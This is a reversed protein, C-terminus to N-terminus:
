GYGGKSSSWGEKMPKPTYCVGDGKVMVRTDEEQKQRRDGQRKVERKTRAVGGAKVGQRKVKRKTRAVGGAKVGQRKVKRKTRAVGGAKVGQRKVKRKARAVGGAKM